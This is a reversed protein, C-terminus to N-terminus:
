ILLIQDIFFLFFHEIFAFGSHDPPAFSLTKLKFSALCVFIAKSGFISNKIFMKATLSKKNLVVAHIVFRM